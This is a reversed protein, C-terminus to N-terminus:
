AVFKKLLELFGDRERSQLLIDLEGNDFYIGQCSQCKDIAIGALDIEEMQGGCKPCKMWSDPHGEAAKAQSAKERNKEILEKNLTYFYEEEKSYGVKKLDGKDV